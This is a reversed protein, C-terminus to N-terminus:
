PVEYVEVLLAADRSGPALAFAGQATSAAQLAAVDPVNGWDDNVLIPQNASDFVTVVPNALTAPVGFAGLAPGAARILLTKPKTGRITIGPIVVNAGTGVSARASINM